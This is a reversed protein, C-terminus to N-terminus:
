KLINVSSMPCSAALGMLHFVVQRLFVYDIFNKNTGYYETDHNKIANDFGDPAYYGALSLKSLKAAVLSPGNYNNYPNKSKESLGTAEFLGDSTVLKLPNKSDVIKM